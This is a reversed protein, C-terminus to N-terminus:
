HTSKKAQGYSLLDDKDPMDWIPREGIHAIGLPHATDILTIRHDLSMQNAM